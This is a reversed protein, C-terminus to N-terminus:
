KPADAIWGVVGILFLAIIATVLLWVVVHVGTPINSWKPDGSVPRRLEAHTLATMVLGIAAVALIFALGVDVGAM